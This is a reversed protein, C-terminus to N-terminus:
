YLSILDEQAENLGGLIKITEQCHMGRKKAQMPLWSHSDGVEPFM